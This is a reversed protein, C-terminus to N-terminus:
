KLDWLIIKNTQIVKKNVEYKMNFYYLESNPDDHSPNGPYILNNGDWLTFHGTADGWGSVEFMIIGKNEKLKKMQDTSMSEKKEGLLAKKLTIELIPKGLKQKLIPYLEKVRGWYKDKDAGILVLQTKDSKGPLKIDSLNLGRSMRFSCSNALYSNNLEQENKFKPFQGGIENYLDLTKINKGPYNTLMKSWSPKSNNNAQFLQKEERQKKLEKQKEDFSPNFISDKGFPSSQWYDDIM